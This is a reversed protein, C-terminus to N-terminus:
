MNLCLNTLVWLVSRNKHKFGHSTTSLFSGECLILIIYYLIIYYLIIYYLIIYYLIIYYLLVSHSSTCRMLYVYICYSRLMCDALKFKLSMLM